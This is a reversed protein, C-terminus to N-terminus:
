ERDWTLEGGALADEFGDAARNNGEVPVDLAAALLEGVAAGTSVAAAEADSQLAVAAQRFEERGGVVAAGEVGHDDLADVAEGAHGRVGGPDFAVEFAEIDRQEGGVLRHGRIGGGNEGAADLLANRLPVDTVQDLLAAAAHLLADTLAPM